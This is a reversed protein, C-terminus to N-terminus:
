KEWDSVSSAATMVSTPFFGLNKMKEKYVPIDEPRGWREPCVLCTKFGKLQKVIKEDLPLVTATDIWVWDVKGRFNETLEIPEYESYRVAIRKVGQGSARYLYPMEVDLLFYDKINNEKALKIVEEEIGAAKINFVITGKHGGKDYEKLYGVLNDRKSESKKSPDHSLTLDERIDIEVGYDPPLTKLKEITNVRHIIIQM